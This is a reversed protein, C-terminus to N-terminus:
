DLFLTLGKAATASSRAARFDRNEEAQMAILAPMIDGNVASMDSGDKTSYVPFKLSSGSVSLGMKAVDALIQASAEAAMAGSHFPAAVLMM